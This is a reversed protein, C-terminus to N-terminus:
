QKNKEEERARNYMAIAHVLNSTGAISLMLLAFSVIEAGMPDAIKSYAIEAFVIGGVIMAISMLGPKSLFVEKIMRM